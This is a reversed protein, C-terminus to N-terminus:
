EEKTHNNVNSESTLKKSVLGRRDSSTHAFVDLNNRLLIITNITPLGM